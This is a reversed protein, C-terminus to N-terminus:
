PLGRSQLLGRNGATVLMAKNTNRQILLLMNIEKERM